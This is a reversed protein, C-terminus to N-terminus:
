STRGDYKVASTDASETISPVAVVVVEVELVMVVLVLLVVEVVELVLVEMEVVVLVLEDVEVVVELVPPEDETETFETEREPAAIAPSHVVQFWPFVIRAVPYVGIDNVPVL